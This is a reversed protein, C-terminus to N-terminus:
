NLLHDKINLTKDINFITNEIILYNLLQKYQEETIARQLQSRRLFNMSWNKLWIKIM